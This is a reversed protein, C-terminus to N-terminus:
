PPPHLAPSATQRSINEWVADIGGLNDLLYSFALSDNRIIALANCNAIYFNKGPRYTTTIWSNNGPAGEGMYTVTATPLVSGSSVGECYAIGAPLAWSGAPIIPSLDNFGLTENSALNIYRFTIREGPNANDYAIICSPLPDPSNDQETEETEESTEASEATPVVPVPETTTTEETTEELTTESTEEETEEETTRKTHTATAAGVMEPFKKKYISQM